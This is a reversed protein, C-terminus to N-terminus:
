QENQKKRLQIANDIKWKALILWTKAEKMSCGTRMAFWVIKSDHSKMHSVFFHYEAHEFILVM